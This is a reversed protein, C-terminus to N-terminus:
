ISCNPSYFRGRNEMMEDDKIINKTIKNFTKGRLLETIFYMCYVGCESGKFQFRNNNIKYKIKNNNSKGQNVLKNALNNIEEPPNLGYSDFYYIENKNLDCYLAVWHSGNQDHKDLNFIVGIKMIEDKMLKNINIKCIENILCNGFTDKLDFDIPIPGIFLFDTYLEEYQKMVDEIDITSLWENKNGYWESPIQPRFTNNIKKDNLDKVFKEQIWCWENNNNIRKKINKWLKPKSKTIKIKDKNLKNWQKAIKKLSGLTFCTYKNKKNKPSCYVKRKKTVKPRYINIIKKTIKNLM